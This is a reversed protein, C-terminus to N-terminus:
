DSEILVISDDAISVSFRGSTQSCPSDNIDLSIIPKLLRGHWPCRLCNDQITSEDLLAGEHPCTREYFHFQSGQREIIAGSTPNSGMITRGEPINRADDLQSVWEIDAPIILNNEQIRLTEIFSYGAADAKFSFGARRLEGRRERMPVDASMLTQYNKRLLRHAFGHLFKLSRVTGLNYTTAVQTQEADLPHWQTKIVLCFPGITTYYSQSTRDVAYNVVTLPIRLPGLRQLFITAIIDEGIAAAVGEVQNHLENLHPIDKYNWDADSPSYLGKHIMTSSTFVMGEAALAAVLSEASMKRM